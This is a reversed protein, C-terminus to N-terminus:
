CGVALSVRDQYARNYPLITGPFYGSQKRGQPCDRRTSDRHVRHKLLARGATLVQGLIVEDVKDGQIGTDKLLASIVEAGLKPAPISSLSGGFTGLATRTASVIVIEQNSM